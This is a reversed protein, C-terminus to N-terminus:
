GRRLPGRSRAPTNKMDPEERDGRTSQVQTQQELSKVVQQGAPTLTWANAQGKSFGDTQNAILGLREIRALLKSIQGQDEAGALQGVQRNSCGPHEAIACLTLMTRYTLRMGAGKFPDAQAPSGSHLGANTRPLPRQLERRSAVSGLYPLVIMSALENALGALPRAPTASMRTHLLSLAGGVVAEAILPSTDRSAKELRGRDVAAILPDLVRRRRELAKPGAGLAEVILLRGTTPQEDFLGLLAVIGARMQVRWPAQPDHAALVRSRACDLEHDIAELLCQESDSFLEYFTRRSVGAREVVHAVTVNPAGREVAVQTMANLIRARQVETVRERRRGDVGSPSAATYRNEGDEASGRKVSMRSPAPRLRTSAKPVFSGRTLLLEGTM